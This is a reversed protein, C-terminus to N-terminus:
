LNKIFLFTANDRYIEAEIIPGFNNLTPITIQIRDM